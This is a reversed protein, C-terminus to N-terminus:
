MAGALDLAFHVAGGKCHTIQFGHRRYFLIVEHWAKNTELIIRHFDAEKASRCLEQLIMAGIGKRRMNAAVSMRVIEAVGNAKPILAGTGVIRGDKQAVLFMARSYSTAIDDLDPNKSLDLVGWHEKLGSLILRKVEAQDDPHFRRLFIGQTSAKNM